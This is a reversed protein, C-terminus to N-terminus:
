AFDSLSSSFGILHLGFSEKYYEKLEQYLVTQNTFYGSLYFRKREEKEKRDQLRKKEKERKFFSDKSKAM